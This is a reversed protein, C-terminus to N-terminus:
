NAPYPTPQLLPDACPCDPVLLDYGEVAVPLQSDWRGRYYDFHYPYPRAYWSGAFGFGFNGPVFGGHWGGYGGRHAFAATAATSAAVAAPRQRMYGQASAPPTFVAASFLAILTVLRVM